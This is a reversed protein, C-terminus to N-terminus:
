ELEKLSKSMRLLMGHSTGLMNWGRRQRTEAGLCSFSVQGVQIKVSTGLQSVFIMLQFSLCGM